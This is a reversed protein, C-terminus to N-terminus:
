RTDALTGRRWLMSRRSQEGLDFRRWAMLMVFMGVLELPVNWWGRSLSPLRNAEWDGLFPWWFVTANRFVGDFVLHLLMGIPLGLLLRRIPRRGTTAMVVALVGVAVVLSHGWRAHGTAGDLLDPMLAGVSLLRYDFQDDRFVVYVTLAATAVFWLFM